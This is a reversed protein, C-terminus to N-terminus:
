APTRPFLRPFWTAFGESYGRPTSPKQYRPPLSAITLSAVIASVRSSGIATTGISTFRASMIALKRRRHHLNERHQLRLPNRRRPMQKRM